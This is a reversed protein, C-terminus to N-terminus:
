KIRAERALRANKVSQSTVDADLIYARVASQGAVAAIDQINNVNVNGPTASVVGGIAFKPRIPAGGTSENIASLVPAFKQVAAANIVAEGNSAMIPVLDDTPGGSGYVMGGLALGQIAQRQAIATAIQAASTAAFIAAFVGGGIPGLDSFGRIFALATNALIESITIALDIDAQKKKVEKLKKQKEEEIKAQEVAAQRQLEAIQSETLEENELRKDLRAQEAKARKEYEEEIRKTEADLIAQSLEAAEQVLGLTDSILQSIGDKKKQEADLKNQVDEEYLQKSNENMQRKIALEEKSGEKIVKVQEGNVEVTQDLQAQLDKNQDEVRERNLKKELDARRKIFQTLTEGEEQKLDILQQSNAIEAQLNGILTDEGLQKAALDKRLKALDAAQRIIVDKTDKGQQELNKLEIENQKVQLAIRDNFSADELKVKEQLVRAEENLADMKIKLEAETTKTTNNITETDIAKLAAAANKRLVVKDQETKAVKLDLALQDNISKTRADKSAKFAANEADLREKDTKAKSLAAAKENEIQALTLQLDANVVAKRRGIGEEFLRRQEAAQQIRLEALKQNTDEELKYNVDAQKGNIELIKNNLEIQLAITSKGEAQRLAIKKRIEKTAQDIENQGAERAINFREARASAEAEKAKGLAVKADDLKQKAEKTDSEGSARNFEQELRFQDAYAKDSQASLANILDQNDKKLQEYQKKPDFGLQSLREIEIKTQNFRSSIVDAQASLTDGLEESKEQAEESASKFNSAFYAAAAGLGVIIAGIGTSILTAKFANTAASAATMGGAVGAGATAGGAGLAVESAAATQTNTALAKAELAAVKQAKGLLGLQAALKGIGSPLGQVLQGIKTFNPISDKFAEIGNVIALASQVKLLAKQVDESEKGFLGAAGQLVSFAGAAGQLGGILADAGSKNANIARANEELQDKLAGARQAALNYGETGQEFEGLAAVAERYQQKLSKTENTLDKTSEAAKETQVSLNAIDDATKDIGDMRFKVSNNAAKSIDAVQKKVDELSGSLKQVDGTNSIVEVEIVKKIAAM